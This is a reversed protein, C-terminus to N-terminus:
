AELEKIIADIDARLSDIQEVTKAVEANVEDIDIEERTDKPEVYSNM